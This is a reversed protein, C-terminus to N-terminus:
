ILGVNIWLSLFLIDVIDKEGSDHLGGHYSSTQHDLKTQSMAVTNIISYLCTKTMWSPLILAVKAM